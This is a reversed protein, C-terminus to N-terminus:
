KMAQFFDDRYKDSLAAFCNSSLNITGGDEKSYGDVHNINIIYSKSVRVFTNRPLEGEFYKLSKSNKLNEGSTLFLWSNNSSSRLMIIEDYRICRFGQKVPLRLKDHNKSLSFSSILKKIEHMESELSKSEWEALAISVSDVVDDISLPKLLYKKVGYQNLARLISEPQNSSTTFVVSFDVTSFANLIDFAGNTNGCLTIDLFVLHPKKNKISSVAQEVTEVQDVIEVSDRCYQRLIGALAEQGLKEDEVIIARLKM